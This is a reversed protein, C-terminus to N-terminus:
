PAPLPVAPQCVHFSPVPLVLNSGDPQHVPGAGSCLDHHPPISRTAVGDPCRRRASNGRLARRGRGARAGEGGGDRRGAVSAHGGRVAGAARARACTRVGHGDRLPLQNLSTSHLTSTGIVTQGCGAGHQAARPDCGADAKGAPWQGRARAREAPVARRVQAGGAGAQQPQDNNALEVSVESPHVIAASQYAAAPIPPHVSAPLGQYEGAMSQANVSPPPLTQTSTVLVASPSAAVATSLQAMQQRLRLENNEQVRTHVDFSRLARPTPWSLVNSELSANPSFSDGHDGPDLCM